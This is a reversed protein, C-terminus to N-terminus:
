VISVSLVPPPSTTASLENSAVSTLLGNKAVVVAYYTTSDVLGTLDYSTTVIGSVHPATNIDVPTTTSYYLTYTAAGVVSNWTYAVHKIGGTATLLTPTPLTPAATTGSFEISPPSTNGRDDAAVVIYYYTTSFALDTHHFVIDTIDLIPTGNLVTVGPTTRWYVNYHTANITNEWSLKLGPM